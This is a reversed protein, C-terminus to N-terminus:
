WTQRHPWPRPRRPKATNRPMKLYLNIRNQIKLVPILNRSKRVIAFFAFNLVRSTLYWYPLRKKGEKKQLSLPFLVGDKGGSFIYFLIPFGHYWALTFRGARLKSWLRITRMRQNSSIPTVSSIHVFLKCSSVSQPVFKTFSASFPQCRDNLWLVSKVLVSHIYFFAFVIM